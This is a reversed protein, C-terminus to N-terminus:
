FCIGCGTCNEGTYHAPHVSYAEIYAEIGSNQGNADKADIININRGKASVIGATVTSELNFPNGVALVWQGVEVSDSNGFPIYSLNNEDIKLLALDTSPDTGIVKAEYSKKNAIIVDVKDGGDIVHNNTVIYGDNSIIVGSGSSESPQQQYPQGFPNFDDGFFDRFPNYQDNRTMKRPAYSTKIHVVAPTTIKAAYRFDVQGAAAIMPSYSVRAVPTSMQNQQFSVPNIKNDVYHYAAVTVLASVIAVFATLGIKRLNM